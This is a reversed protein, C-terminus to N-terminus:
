SWAGDLRVECLESPRTADDADIVVFIRDSTNPVTAVGEVKDRVLVGNADTIPAYRPDGTPPIVGCVSGSVDGDDSAKMSNEAAATYLVVAGLLTADTFGLPLGGLRGLNYQVVASPAPLPAMGPAALYDLLGPLSLDCTANLPVRGKRAEGNGRGFLRLTNALALAGEINLDSGAFDHTSELLVYLSDADVVTIRPAAEGFAEVTVVRRRRKKSGSGLALFRLGHPGPIACCAELDLKFKKNGRADDFQRAGENGAPLAIADALGSRPDVLAVFSADDQILALREDVWALSSGARLHAPRDANPDAGARYLLPTRSVLTARLAPDHHATRQPHRRQM